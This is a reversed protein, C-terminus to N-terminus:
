KEQTNRLSYKGDGDRLIRGTKTLTHIAYQVNSPPLYADEQTSLEDILVGGTLAESGELRAQVADLAKSALEGRLRWIAAMHDLESKARTNEESLLQEM